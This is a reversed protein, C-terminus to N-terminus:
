LQSNSLHQACDYMAIPEKLQKHKLQKDLGTEVYYSFAAHIRHM